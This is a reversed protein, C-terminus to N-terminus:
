PSGDNATGNDPPQAMRRHHANIELIIIFGLMTFIMPYIVATSFLSVDAAAHRGISMLLILPISLFSMQFRIVDLAAQCSLATLYVGLVTYFGTLVVARRDDFGKFLRIGAYVFIPPLVFLPWFVTGTIYTLVTTPLVALIVGCFGGVISMPLLVQYRARWKLGAKHWKPVAGRLAAKVDSPWQRAADLQKQIASRLKAPAARLHAAAAKIKKSLARAKEAVAALAARLRGIRASLRLFPQRGAPETSGNQLSPNDPVEQATDTNRKKLTTFRALLKSTGAIHGEM